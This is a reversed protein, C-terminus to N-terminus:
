IYIWCLVGYDMHMTLNQDIILIRTDCLQEIVFLDFMKAM